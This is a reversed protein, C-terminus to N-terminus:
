KGDDFFGSNNFYISKSCKQCMIRYPLLYRIGFTDEFTKGGTHYCPQFIHKCLFQRLLKVIKKM